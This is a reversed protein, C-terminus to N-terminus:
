AEAAIDNVDILDTHQGQRRGTATQLVLKALGESNQAHIM